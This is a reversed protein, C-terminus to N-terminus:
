GGCYSCPKLKTYGVDRAFERAAEATPFGRWYSTRRERGEQTGRGHNCFGCEARHIRGRKLHDNVYVWYPADADADSGRAPNRQDGRGSASAARMHSLDPKSGRSVGRKNWEPALRSILATELGPAHDLPLGNWNGRGPWAALIDVPGDTEILNLLLARIRISTRMRPGPRVYHRLRTKLPRMAVGVYLTREGHLFVYVAAPESLCEHADLALAEGERTWRGVPNFGADLLEARHM